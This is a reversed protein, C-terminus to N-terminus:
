LRMSNRRAAGILMSISLDLENVIKRFCFDENMINGTTLLSHLRM